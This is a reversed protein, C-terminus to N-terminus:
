AGTFTAMLGFHDSPLVGTAPDPHQLVVQAGAVAGALARNCLMHDLNMPEGAETIHTAKNALGVQACLDTWDPSPVPQGGVLRHVDPALLEHTAANFDGCVLQATNGYRTAMYALVARLQQQRLGHGCAAQSLHTLHVNALVLTNDANVQLLAIQAIRGGDAASSPLDLSLCEIAPTRSLVAMGSWSDVQQGQVWRQKHRAPAWHAHLGLARSLYRATDHQGNASAFCEQLAVVDPNLARIGAAMAQLRLSYPGDCKWTNLTLVRMGPNPLPRSTM